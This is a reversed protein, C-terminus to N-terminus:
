FINEEFTQNKINIEILKWGFMPFLESSMKLKLIADERASSWKKGAKNISIEKVEHFEMRDHYEVFFDPRYTMGNKGGPTNHVLTFTIQEFGYSVIDGHFLGAYLILDYFTEPKNMKGPTRSHNKPPTKKRM